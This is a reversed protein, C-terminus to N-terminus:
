LRTIFFLYLNKEIWRDGVMQEDVWEDIKDIRGNMRGDMSGDTWGYADM